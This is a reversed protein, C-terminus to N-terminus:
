FDIQARLAFIDANSNGLTPDDLYAHIYNLQFKTHANVYWNMGFTIDNLRRGPGPFGTGNFDVFSWRADLEWAGIGGNGFSADQHPIVRGFVGDKKKYPLKEGTLLYRLQAYGGPLTNRQGGNQEIVMWRFESQLYLNGYAAAAEVGMLNINTVNSLTGTSVFAPVGVFSAPFVGGSTQGVQIEPQSAFQVKNTAPNLYSYDFGVHFLQDGENEYYPLWTTRGVFSYGGANGTNNGFNDSPYRVVSGAWTAREDDSHNYFGIGTQRFPAMSFPLARELFPLERVSTLEAMGFPQRWRGIRVNGFVPVKAFNMWVDVFRPQSAAFDFEIIYSVNEAVNGKAALRARRFESGDQLPGGLTAVNRSDQHYWANDLHFFGTVGVTPYTPPCGSAQLLNNTNFNSPFYGAQQIGSSDISATERNDDNWNSTERALDFNVADASGAPRGNIAQMETELEDLRRLIVGIDDHIGNVAPTGASRQDLPLPTAAGAPLVNLLGCYVLASTLGYKWVMRLNM